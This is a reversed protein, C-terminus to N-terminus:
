YICCLYFSIIAIININIIIITTIINIGIVTITIFIVINMIKIIITIMMVIKMILMILINICDHINYNGILKLFMNGRNNLTCSILPKTTWVM